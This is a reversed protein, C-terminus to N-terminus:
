FQYMYQQLEAPLQAPSAMKIITITPSAAPPPMPPPLFTTALLTTEPVIAAKQPKAAPPTETPTARTLMAVTPTAM